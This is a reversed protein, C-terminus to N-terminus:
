PIAAEALVRRLSGIDHAFRGLFLGDVADRLSALLGPGASGGYILRTAARDALHQRLGAAAARIYDAGAPEAAGIAWIPEWAVVLPAAADVGDTAAAFQRACDRLADDTSGRTTEGICLLPVLGARVAAAVKRRVIEDTEGFLRRREAHGIEVFRCGAEALMPASVEGTYAGTDEWFM